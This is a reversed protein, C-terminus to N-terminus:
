AGSGLWDCDGESDALWAASWGDQEQYNVSFWSQTRANAPVAAGAPILDLIEGWPASRLRLDARATVQCNELDIASAVSDGAGPRDARDDRRPDPALAQAPAREPAAGDMLTLFYDYMHDGFAHCVAASADIAAQFHTGGLVRSRGCEEEFETWTAFHLTLDEAPTIGPEIRSSGAAYTVSLGLEDTGFYRRAAQGQAQCACMSASPYEPHDAVNIYSQWQNAPIETTGRGPGGWATVLEDGYVHAVASFPRVADYRTKEQWTFIMADFAAAQTLWDVQVFEIPSLRHNVVAQVLSWGFSVIKNDFFEAMMKDEDTLNASVELVHDVQAKYADWNEPNSAVPAPIRYDRPNFDAFPETNAMQPTVFQQVTHLGMGQRRIAPQWRSADVLDYATNVPAYGTNNAYGAAQNMGDHLRAAIAGKGAATGIGAPTTLDMGDEPDLGYDTLTSRWVAERQPLLGRVAHYFAYLTAINMNRLTWEEQPRREIRTYVGVATPHYPALADFVGAIVVAGLRFIMTVDSFAPSVDQALIPLSRPILVQALPVGTDLEFPPLPPIPPPPIGPPFQAQAVGGLLLSTFLIFLLFRRGADIMTKM